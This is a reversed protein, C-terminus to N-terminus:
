PSIYCSWCRSKESMVCPQHANEWFVLMKHQPGFKTPHCHPRAHPAVPEGHCSPQRIPVSSGLRVSALRATLQRTKAIWECAGSVRDCPRFTTWRRHLPNARSTLISSADDPRDQKWVAPETPAGAAPGMSEWSHAGPRSHSAPQRGPQDCRRSQELLLMSPGRPPPHLPQWQVDCCVCLVCCVACPALCVSVAGAAGVRHHISAPTTEVQRGSSKGM